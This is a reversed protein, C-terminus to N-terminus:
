RIRTTYNIASSYRDGVRLAYYAGKDCLDLERGTRDVRIEVEYCEKKITITKRRYGTTVNKCTTKTKKTLRNTKTKCSRGKVAVRKTKTKAPEYEKEIVTGRVPHSTTTHTGCATLLLVPTAILASIALSTRM